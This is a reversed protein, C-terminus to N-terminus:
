AAALSPSTVHRLPTSTAEALEIRLVCAEQLALLREVEEDALPAAVPDDVPDGTTVCQESAVVQWVDPLDLLGTIEPPSADALDLLLECAVQVALLREVEEDALLAAVSHQGPMSIAM